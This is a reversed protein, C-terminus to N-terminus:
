RSPKREFTAEEVSKKAPLAAKLKSKEKCGTTSERTSGTNPVFFNGGQGLRELRLVKEKLTGRGKM